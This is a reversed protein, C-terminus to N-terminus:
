LRWTSGDPAPWPAVQAHLAQDSDQTLICCCMQGSFSHPTESVDYVLQVGIDRFVESHVTAHFDGLWTCLLFHRESLPAVLVVATQSTVGHIRSCVLTESSNTAATKLTSYYVHNPFLHYPYLSSLVPDLARTHLANARSSGSLVADLGMLYCHQRVKQKSHETRSDANHRRSKPEIAGL